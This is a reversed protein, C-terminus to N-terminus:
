QSIVTSVLYSSYLGDNMSYNSSHASRAHLSVSCDLPNCYLAAIRFTIGGIEYRQGTVYLTPPPPLTTSNLGEWWHEMLNQQWKVSPLLSASQCYSAQCPLTVNFEETHFFIASVSM